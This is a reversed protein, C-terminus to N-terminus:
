VLLGGLRTVVARLVHSPIGCTDTVPQCYVSDASAKEHHASAVEDDAGGTTKKWTSSLEVEM